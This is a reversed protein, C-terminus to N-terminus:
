FLFARRVHLLERPLQSLLTNGVQLGDLRECRADCGQLRLVLAESGAELSSRVALRPAVALVAFGCDRPWPPTCRLWRTVKQCWVLVPAQPAVAAAIAIPRLRPLYRLLLPIM